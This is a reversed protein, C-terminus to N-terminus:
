PGDPCSAFVLILANEPRSRADADDDYCGDGRVRSVAERLDGLMEGRGMELMRGLGLGM